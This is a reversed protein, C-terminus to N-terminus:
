WAVWGGDVLLVHGTILSAAPSALFVVAGTVDEVQGIRGAPIRRLVETRFREDALMPRTMPTEVFTPAVSNVTVGHPAWEVALARTLGDVAHKTACYAARGPFGVSGLQSSIQIIRGGRGLELLRRGVARALVFSARLNIAVLADFDELRYDITPGPRNTGASNVLISLSGHTAAAAVAAEAQGAESVDAAVAWARGGSAEIEAVLEDLEAQTRSVVTVGAGAEALALACGRGIGRGAGAVLAHQGDLRLDPV